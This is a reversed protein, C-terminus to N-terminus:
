NVWPLVLGAGGGFYPGKALVTNGSSTPIPIASDWFIRDFKIKRLRQQAVFDVGLGLACSRLLSVVHSVWPLRQQLNIPQQPSHPKRPSLASNRYDSLGGTPSDTQPPEPGIGCHPFVTKTMPGHTAFGLVMTKHAWGRGSV